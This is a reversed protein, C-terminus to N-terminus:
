SEAPSGIQGFLGQYKDADAKSGKYIRIGSVTHNAGDFTGRFYRDNTGDYDGIAEYNSETSNADNWATTHDYTIDQTLVFYKGRYDNGGNVDTALQNLDATSAIKYPDAKSGSGGSFASDAWATQATMTLMVALLLMAARRIGAGRRCCAQLVPARLISITKNMM